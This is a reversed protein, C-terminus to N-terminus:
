VSEKVRLREGDFVVAGSVRLWQLASRYLATAQAGRYEAMSTAAYQARLEDPTLPRAALADLIFRRTPTM